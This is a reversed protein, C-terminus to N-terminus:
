LCESPISADGSSSRVHAHEVDVTVVAGSGTPLEDADPSSLISTFTTQQTPNGANVLSNPPLVDELSAPAAVPLTFHSSQFSSKVPLALDVAPSSMSAADLVPMESTGPAILTVLIAPNSPPTPASPELAPVPEPSNVGESQHAPRESHGLAPSPPQYTLPRRHSAEVCPPFDSQELTILEDYTGAGRFRRSASAVAQPHSQRYVPQLCALIHLAVKHEDRDPAVRIIRNWIECLSYYTENFLSERLVPELQM